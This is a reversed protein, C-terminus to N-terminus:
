PICQNPSLLLSLLSVWSGIFLQSCTRQLGGAILVASIDQSSFVSFLPNICKDISSARSTLCQELCQLSGIFLVSLNTRWPAKMTIAPSQYNPLYVANCITLEISFSVPCPYFPIAYTGIKYLFILFTGEIVTVNSCLDSPLPLILPLSVHLYRPSSIWASSLSRAFARPCFHASAHKLSM